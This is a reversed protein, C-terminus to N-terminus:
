FNYQKEYIIWYKNLISRLTNNKQVNIVYKKYIESVQYVINLNEKLITELYMTKPIAVYKVDESKLKKLMEEIDKCAVYTIDKAEELYYKITNLDTDFVGLEINNLDNIKNLVQKDKSVIVYYDKYIEIDEKSLKDTFNMIKFSMDKFEHESHISYPVRNFDIGHTRKFEELYSFIIGEGNKGFIPVDNYVSVDIIDNANKSIWDKEKLSLSTSDKTYNLVFVVISITMILAIISLIVLKHTKSNKKM